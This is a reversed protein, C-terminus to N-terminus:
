SEKLKFVKDVQIKEDIKNGHLVINRKGLTDSPATKEIKKFFCINNKKLIKVSLSDM